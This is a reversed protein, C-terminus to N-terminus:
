TLVRAGTKEVIMTHESQSVQGKAKEPLQKYQKIIGERELTLVGLKARMGFKKILWRICFPLQKYEELIYNLVERAFNDRPTKVEIVGYVQSEKGEIIKGEGNTAFPEIALVDGVIPRKKQLIEPVNPVSLGAHLHYRKM